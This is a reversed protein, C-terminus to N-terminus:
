ETFKVWKIVTGIKVAAECGGGTSVKHGLYTILRVTEVEDCIKKEHGM